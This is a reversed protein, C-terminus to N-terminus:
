IDPCKIAGRRKSRGKYQFKSLFTVEHAALKPNFTVAGSLNLDYTYVFDYNEFSIGLLITLANINLQTQNLLLGAMLGEYNVNAGYQFQIYNLDTSISLIPSINYNSYYNGAQIRGIYSANYLMTAPNTGTNTFLNNASLGIFHENNLNYGIGVNIRPTYFSENAPITMNQNEFTLNSYNTAARTYFGQLGFLFHSKRGTQLKYAYNLGAAINTFTGKYQNDYNIIAGINSNLKDASHFYAVGYSSYLGSVPWQNRYNLQAVTYDFFLIYSPNTFTLNNYLNSVFYNQALLINCLFSFIIYSLIRKRTKNM